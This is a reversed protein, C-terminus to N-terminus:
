DVTWKLFKDAISLIEKSISIHKDLKDKLVQNENKTASCSKHTCRENTCVEKRLLYQIGWITNEEHAKMMRILSNRMKEILNHLSEISEHSGERESYSSDNRRDDNDEHFTKKASRSPTKTALLYNPEGQESRCYKEYELLTKELEKQRSKENNDLALKILKNRLSEKVRQSTRCPTEM